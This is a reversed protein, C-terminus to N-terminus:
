PELVRGLVEPARLASGVAAHQREMVENPEGPERQAGAPALAAAMLAARQLDHQPEGLGWEGAV